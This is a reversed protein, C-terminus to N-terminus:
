AYQRETMGPKVRFGTDTRLMIRSSAPDPGAHRDSVQCRVGSVRFRKNASNIM